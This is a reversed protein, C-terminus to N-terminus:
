VTNKTYLRLALRSALHMSFVYRLTEGTQEGFRRCMQSQYSDRALPTHAQFSPLVLAVTDPEAGVVTAVRAVM